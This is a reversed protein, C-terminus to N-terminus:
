TCNKFERENHWVYVDNCIFVSVLEDFFTNQKEVHSVHMAHCIKGKKETARYWCYVNIANWSMQNKSKKDSTKKLAGSDYYVHKTAWLTDM